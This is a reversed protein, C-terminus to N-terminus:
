VDSETHLPRLTGSTPIGCSPASRYWGDALGDSRNEARSDLHVHDGHAPAGPGLIGSLRDLSGGARYRVAVRRRGRRRGHRVPAPTDSIASSIASRSTTALPRDSLKHRLAELKWMLRFVNAQATAAPLQGGDFGSGCASSDDLESWAFHVPTCDPDQLAYLRAYTASGAEGDTALGYASQFRKVAAQTQAGFQGDVLLYSRYAAWGALRVQLQAVDPGSTGLQPTRTWRYCGVAV